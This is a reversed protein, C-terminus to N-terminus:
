SYEAQAEVEEKHAKSTMHAQYPMPGNFSKCCVECRYQDGGSNNQERNYASVYSKPKSNDMSKVPPTETKTNQKNSELWSLSTLPAGMDYLYSFPVYGEEGDSNRVLAWMDQSPHKRLYFVEDKQKMSLEKDGLPTDSNANYSYKAMMKKGSNTEETQATESTSFANPRRAPARSMLALVGRGRGRPGPRWSGDDEDM